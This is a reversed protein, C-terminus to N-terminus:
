LVSLSVKLFRALHKKLMMLFKKQYSSAAVLTKGTTDDIIQAYIQNLSRYVSLRPREPTGFIKKRVRIKVKERKKSDRKFM